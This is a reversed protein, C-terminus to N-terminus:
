FDLGIAVMKSRVEQVWEDLSSNGLVLFPVGAQNSLDRFTKQRKRRNYKALYKLFVLSIQEAKAGEPIVDKPQGHKRARNFARPIAVLRSIDMFIVLTARAFREPLMSHYGGDIIWGDRAIIEGHIRETEEIPGIKFDKSLLERDLHFVPVKFVAGLAKALTSKGSGGNGLICIRPKM